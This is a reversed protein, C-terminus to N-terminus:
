FLSVLLLCIICYYSLLLGLFLVTLVKRSSSQASFNKNSWFIFLLFEINKFFYKGKLM